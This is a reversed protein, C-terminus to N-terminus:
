NENSLFLRKWIFETNVKKRREKNDLNELFIKKNNKYFTIIDNYTYTFLKKREKM